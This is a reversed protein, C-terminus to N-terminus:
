CYYFLNILVESLVEKKFFNETFNENIEKIVASLGFVVAKNNFFSFDNPVIKALHEFNRATLNCYVKTTGEPYMTIHSLKYADIALMPNIEIM